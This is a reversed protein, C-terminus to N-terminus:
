FPLEDNSLNSFDKLRLTPGTALNLDNKLSNDFRYNINFLSTANSFDVWAELENDNVQSNFYEILKSKIADQIDKRFGPTLENNWFKKFEESQKEKEEFPPNGLVVKFEAFESPHYDHNFNDSNIKFNLRKDLIISLEFTNRISGASQTSQKKTLYMNLYFPEFFGEAPAIEPNGIISLDTDSSISVDVDFPLYEFFDKPSVSLYQCLSNITELQLMKGKNNVASNITNRSLNDIDNAIRSAKLGREVMLEKLRNRIM